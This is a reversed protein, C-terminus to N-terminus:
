LTTNTRLSRSPFDFSSVAVIRFSDSSAVFDRNRLALANRRASSLGYMEELCSVFQHFALFCITIDAVIEVCIEVGLSAFLHPFVYGGACVTSSEQVRYYLRDGQVFLRRIRLNWRRRMLAQEFGDVKRPSGLGAGSSPCGSLQEGASLKRTVGKENDSCGILTDRDGRECSM